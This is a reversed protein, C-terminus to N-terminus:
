VVVAYCALLSNTFDICGVVSRDYFLKSCIPCNCSPDSAPDPITYTSAQGCTLCTYEYSGVSVRQTAGETGCKPCHLSVLPM